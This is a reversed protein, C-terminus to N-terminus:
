SSSASYITEPNSRRKQISNLEMKKCFLLTIRNDSHAEIEIWCKTDLRILYNIMEFLKITLSLNGIKKLNIISKSFLDANQIIM